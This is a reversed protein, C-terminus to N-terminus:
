FDRVETDCSGGFLLQHEIGCLPAFRKKALDCSDTTTDQRVSEEIVTESTPKNPALRLMKLSTKLLSRRRYRQAKREATRRHNDM